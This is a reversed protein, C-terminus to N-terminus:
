EYEDQEKEEPITYMEHRKKLPLTIIMVTGQPENRRGSISGGHLEAIGQCIALGLGTGTVQKTASARYFKEFIRVYEDESLGIGQDFVSIRLNDSDVSVKIDIDSYDPSYKIANSVINVLMQELLVEDGIVMPTNEPLHVRLTRHEQFDKVQALTVGILDEVDCWNNRLRLMGSELQVMSLLNIVLRNMRLAGDRITTLLEMRDESTFLHDSEILSTSSGIIAALPTRLEHSVSDLIATRLRESEASLHAIKAEEALKVRAIASAALGGIAELMQYQEATLGSKLEKMNLALVGYIRDETKLPLYYGQSYRLINSGYGAAEGDEFTLIAIVAEAESKGWDSLDDSRHTLVLKNRDDPLYIVSEAGINQSVHRSVNDLLAHIDTLASMQSSLAYLSATQAEKQKSYLLQQKLRAALSSILVAVALYVGFSILYRLDEVTFSLEPPVFFFDFALVAVIASYIAPRFGWFVSSILVPFLYILAINVLDVELIFPHLIATMLSILLTISAYSWWPTWLSKGM